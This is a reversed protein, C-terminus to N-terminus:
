YSSMADENGIVRAIAVPKMPTRVRNTRKEVPDTIATKQKHITHPRM